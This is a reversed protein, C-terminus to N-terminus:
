VEINYLSSFKLLSSNPSQFKNTSKKVKSNNYRLINKFCYMQMRFNLRAKTVIIDQFSSLVTCIHCKTKTTRLFLSIKLNQEQYKVTVSIDRYLSTCRFVQYISSM